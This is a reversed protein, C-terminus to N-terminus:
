THEGAIGHARGSVQLDGQHAHGQAVVGPVEVLHDIGGAVLHLLLDSPLEGRVIIHLGEGSPSYETYSDLARVIDMAWPEVQKGPACLDLDIGAYDDGLQFGIGDCRRAQLDALAQDFTRWTTPDNSRARRGTGPTYPTKTSKGNRVETKWTVWRPMEKIEQPIGSINLRGSMETM